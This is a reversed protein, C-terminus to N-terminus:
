SLARPAPRSVTVAPQGGIRGRYKWLLLCGASHTRWGKATDGALNGSHLLVYQRGEVDQLRFVWGFRPPKRLRCIYAGAPICSTNKSNDRWPRELCQCSFGPAQLRAFTGRHGTEYRYLTTKKM